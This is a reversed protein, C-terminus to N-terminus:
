LVRVAYGQNGANGAITYGYYLCLWPGSGNHLWSRTEAYRHDVTMTCIPDHHWHQDIYSHYLAMTFDYDVAM